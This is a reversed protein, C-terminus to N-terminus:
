ASAADSAPAAAARRVDRAGRRGLAFGVSAGVTAGGLVLLALGLQTLVSVVPTLDPAAGEGFGYAFWAVEIPYTAIVGVGAGLLLLGLLPLALRAIM